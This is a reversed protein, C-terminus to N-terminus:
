KVRKRLFEINARQEPTVSAMAAALAKKDAASETAIFMGAHILAFVAAAYEASPLRHKALLARIRPDAELERALEAPSQADVDDQAKNQGAAKSEKEVAEM